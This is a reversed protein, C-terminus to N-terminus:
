ILSQVDFLKVVPPMMETEGYHRESKEPEWVGLLIEIEIQIKM